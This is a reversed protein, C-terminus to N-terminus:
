LGRRVTIRPLQDNEMVGFLKSYEADGEHFIEPASEYHSYAKMARYVIMMHDFKSPIVSVASENTTDLPLPSRYYDGLITYGSLPVNGLGIGDNPLNTFISPQSKATRNAGMQFLDRWDEHEWHILYQESRQGTLTHWVRFSELIWKGFTNAAIGCEATTYTAQGDITNWQATLRLFKWEQHESQIGLDATVIYGLLRAAEGTLGLITSPQTAGVKEALKQVLQLLTMSPM